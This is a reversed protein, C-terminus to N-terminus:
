RKKKNPKHNKIKEYIEELSNSTYYYRQITTYPINSEDSIEKLSKGLKEKIEYKKNQKYVYKLYNELITLMKPDKYLDSKKRPKDNRINTYLLKLTRIDRINYKKCLEELKNNVEKIKKNNEIYNNVEEDFEEKTNIKKYIKIFTPLSMFDLFEEQYFRSVSKYPSIDFKIPLRTRKCYRNDLNRMYKYKMYDKLYEMDETTLDIIKKHLQNYIIPCIKNYPTNTEKAIEKIAASKKHHKERTELFNEIKKFDDDDFEYVSKNPILRLAIHGIGPNYRYNYMYIYRDSIEKLRKDIISKEKDKTHQM